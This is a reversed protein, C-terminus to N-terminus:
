QSLAELRRVAPAIHRSQEVIWDVLPAKSELARPWPPFGFSIGKRKLLDGRPHDAAYPAPVRKLMGHSHLVFGKEQAAAIEKAFPAGTKQDAIKARLRTLADPEIMWRGIAVVDEDLGLHVYFMAPAGEHGLAGAVHDKYPSKDSSFRTDRYIRFVKARGSAINPLVERLREALVNLLAEMPSLWAAEFDAKHQAFWARDQRRALDKLLERGPDKFGNFPVFLQDLERAVEAPVSFPRSRPM